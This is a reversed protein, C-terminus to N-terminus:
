KKSASKLGFGYGAQFRNNRDVQGQSDATEILVYGVDVFLYANDVNRKGVIFESRSYAIRRGHFQDERYGRLTRAGGLYFQESLPVISESSELGHYVTENKIHFLRSLDLEIKEQAEM